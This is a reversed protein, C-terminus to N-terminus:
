GNKASLVTQDCVECIAAVTADCLEDIEAAPMAVAPMLVIVNGLPRIIVGRRRAALTVQHGIRREPGFPQKTDRDVVLEIGVMVGKQRIEGVHPHSGLESLRSQMQTSISAVNGLVDREDFLRLNELSVAAALPNGTYTHGHYFTRGEHPQGLFADHIESTVMTAALPLYGATIGKALCLVDPVVQEQECAFMTGTKGFGVAVEDTILPIGHRATVERVHKLYGPAHVLIGAAGQVIPEMIFGAIRDHHEAITAEVQDFCHQLWSEADHGPPVRYAVPSPVTLTEFLMGSFPRHFAEVRGVAVSGFTDGHYSEAVRVFLRREPEPNSKQHHYQVVMKLAAEVSTAGADSFFAHNLGEPTRQVLQHALEIAPPSSLGLLTTHAIKDLQNRIAADLEPVRHGHVNCWLSSIGDLYRRGEVDTLYFGEGSEIIPAEEEAWATMPTFPHWLETNDWARLDSM